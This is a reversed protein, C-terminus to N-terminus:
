RKHREKKTHAMSRPHLSLCLFALLLLPSIQPDYVEDDTARLNTSQRGNNSQQSELQGKSRDQILSYRQRDDPNLGSYYPISYYRLKHVAIFEYKHLEAKSTNFALRFLSPHHRLQQPPDPAPSSLSQRMIANVRLNANISPLWTLPQPPPTTSQETQLQVVSGTVEYQLELM